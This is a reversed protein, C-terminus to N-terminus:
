FMKCIILRFVNTSTIVTGFARVEPSYSGISIFKTLMQVRIM